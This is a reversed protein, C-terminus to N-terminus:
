YASLDCLIHSFYSHNQQLPDVKLALTQQIFLLHTHTPTRMSVHPPLQMKECCQCSWLAAILTFAEMHSMQFLNFLHEVGCTGIISKVQAHSGHLHLTVIVYLEGSQEDKSYLSIEATVRMGPTSLIINHMNQVYLHLLLYCQQFLITVNAPNFFVQKMNIIFPWFSLCIHIESLDIAGTCVSRM